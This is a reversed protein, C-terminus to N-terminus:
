IVKTRSGPPPPNQGPWPHPIKLHGDPTRPNIFIYDQPNEANDYLNKLTGFLKDNIPIDRSKNSKSEGVHILKSDLNIDQKRINFIEGKRMGANLAVLVINKLYGICVALLSSIEEKTLFRERQNNEPLKKIPKAPNHQLIKWEIAKNFIHSFLSIERNLTSPKIQKGLEKLNIKKRQRLYKEIQWTTIEGMYKDGFHLLIVKLMSIKSKSSKNNLEVWETYEKAFEKFKIKKPEKLMEKVCNQFNM